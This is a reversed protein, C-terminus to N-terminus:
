KSVPSLTVMLIDNEALIISCCSPGCSLIPCCTLWSVVAVDLLVVKAAKGLPALQKAWGYRVCLQHLLGRRFLRLIRQLGSLRAEVRSGRM